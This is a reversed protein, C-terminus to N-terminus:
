RLDSIEAKTPSKAQANQAGGIECKLRAGNFKFMMGNYIDVHRSVSVWIPNTIDGHGKDGKWLVWKEYEPDWYVSCQIKSSIPDQLHIDCDKSRGIFIKQSYHVFTAKEEIEDKHYVIIVLEPFQSIKVTSANDRGNGKTKKDGNFPVTTNFGGMVSKKGPSVKGYKERNVWIDFGPSGIRAFESDPSPSFGIPSHSKIKAGRLPGPSESSLNNPKKNPDFKFVKTPNTSIDRESGRSGV